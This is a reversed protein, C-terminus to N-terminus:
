NTFSRGILGYQLPNDDYNWLGISFGDDLFDRFCDKIDEDSFIDGDVSENFRKLYRM